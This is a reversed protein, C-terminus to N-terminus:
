RVLPSSLWHKQMARVLEAHESSGAKADEEHLAEHFADSAYIVGVFHHPVAKRAGSVSQPVQFLIASCSNPISSVHNRLEELALHVPRGFAFDFLFETIQQRLSAIPLASDLPYAHCFETVAKHSLNSHLLSQIEELSQM